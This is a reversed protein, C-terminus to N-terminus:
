GNEINELRDVTVSGLAPRRSTHCREGKRASGDLEPNVRRSKQVFARAAGFLEPALPSFRV